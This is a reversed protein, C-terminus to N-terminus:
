VRRLVYVVDESDTTITVPEDIDYRFDHVAVLELRPERLILMAMQAATYTRFATEDVIRFQKLPTYVDYTVGIREVRKKL